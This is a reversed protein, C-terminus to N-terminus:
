FTDNNGARSPLWLITSPIPTPLLLPLSPLPPLSVCVPSWLNDTFLQELYMSLNTPCAILHMSFNHSVSKHFDTILQSPRNPRRQFSLVISLSPFMRVQASCLSCAGLNKPACLPAKNLSKAHALIILGNWRSQLAIKEM